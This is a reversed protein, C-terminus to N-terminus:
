LSTATLCPRRSTCNGGQGSGNELTFLGRKDREMAVSPWREAQEQADVEEVVYIPINKGGDFWQDAFVQEGVVRVGM